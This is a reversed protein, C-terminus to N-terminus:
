GPRLGGGHAITALMMVQLPAFHHATWRLRLILTSKQRVNASFFARLLRHPEFFRIYTFHRDALASQAGHNDKFEDAAKM